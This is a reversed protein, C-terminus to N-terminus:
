NYFGYEIMALLDELENLKIEELVERKPLDIKSQWKILRFIVKLLKLAQITAMM